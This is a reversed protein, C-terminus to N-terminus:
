QVYNAYFDLTRSVCFGTYNIQRLCNKANLFFSNQSIVSNGLYM